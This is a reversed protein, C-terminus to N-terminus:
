LLEKQNMEHMRSFVSLSIFLMRTCIPSSGCVYMVRCRCAYDVCFERESPVAIAPMGLGGCYLALRRRLRPRTTRLRNCSSKRYSSIQQPRTALPPWYFQSVKRRQRNLVPPRLCLSHSRPLRHPLHRLRTKFIVSIKRQHPSSPM